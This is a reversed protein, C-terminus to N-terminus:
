VIHLAQMIKGVNTELRSLADVRETLVDINEVIKDLKMEISDLREDTKLAHRALFDLLDDHEDFRRRMESFGDTVITRLDTEKTELNSMRKELTQVRILLSDAM